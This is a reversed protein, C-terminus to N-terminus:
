SFYISLKEDIENQLINCQELLKSLRDAEKREQTAIILKCITNNSECSLYTSLNDQRPNEGGEVLDNAATAELSATRHNAMEALPAIYESRVQEERGSTVSNCGIEVMEDLSPQTLTYPQTKDQVFSSNHPDDPSVVDMDFKRLDHELRDTVNSAKMYCKKQNKLVYAVSSDGSSLNMLQWNFIRRFIVVWRPVICYSSDLLELRAGKQLMVCAEREALAWGMMKSSQTLYKILCKELESKHNQIETAMNSGQNLWSLDDPFSPLRCGEFADVILKISADSNWGRRPLFWSIVRHEDSSDKLVDIEPCPWCVPNMDATAVIEEESQDLARNFVSICHNPGVESISMKDLVELLSNLHSMVLERTKVCQLVPHQPSHRALWQLGERLQEDSYVGDFHKLPRNGALFVISFSKIRTKDLEHLGLGNVITSSPDPVDESFSGSVILLPLCSGYPLSKLLNHLQDKQLKWPISELVLFLVASGGAIEVDLEDVGIDRIVSLTCTPPSGSARTVWKKWISLGPSSVLLEEDGDNDDKRVGMLKSLLWQGTLDDVPSRQQLGERRTDNMQSCFILKWCLCKADPNRESLTREVVESVNVRSWFRRHKEHRERAINDINLEGVFRPQTKKQQIPPGMSLANLAATAALERQKRVERRRLSCRKWIRLILKLKARFAEDEQQIAKAEESEVEQPIAMVVENELDEVIVRESISDELLPGSQFGMSGEEVHPSKGPMSQLPMGKGESHLNRDLFDPFIAGLDPKDVKGVKSPPSEPSHHVLPANRPRFHVDVIHHDDENDHSSLSADFMPEVKSSNRPSSIPEFKSIEEEVVDVPAKRKVSRLTEPEFKDGDDLIIQKAEQVPRCILNDSPVVDGIIRQSKKQHVLRSRKTPYDKDANLFLGEKVMYPEEFEKILFGHYQLLNEMDEEEMGLWKTVHAVPLGQNTQLGSHLSALAQTRLKAFHAHMLCAQLYTAKRALRFFAIFNSTRCARAVERAFLVEQTQRIEPTMKSLDLSFEAPEVKYGPHKDLKLLAYYGRFEKETPINIGKKRHDDYMQFLEVSTKNMQEINLHADFGESFGEGKTYECLEHMAIIHLRIMQELMTIAGRNFIHQMRLDMRIARMRDWLFNYMGLFRDDYHQDLLALLYDVTKQLVPMPRILDAEREATRNYKKVALFKSTQNRDGDLREYKDLDGKREREERESEPCMDPCLGIIVHSSELGEFDSTSGNPFDGGAEVPHEAVFERRGVLSEDQGYMSLKHKTLDHMSQETQRLDNSFRALRRAKAQAERENDDQTSYLSGMSNEDTPPLPPSRMRKPILFSTSKTGAGEVNINRAVSSKQHTQSNTPRGTSDPHPNARFIENGYPGPPSRTRTPVQSNSVKTRLQTGVDHADVYTPVLSPGQHIQSDTYTVPSRSQNDWSKSVNQSSNGLFDEDASLFPPLGTGKPYQFNAPKAPVNSGTGPGVYPKSAYPRPFTQSNSGNVLPEPRSNWQPPSITSGRSQQALTSNHPSITPSPSRPLTGFPTQAKPPVSPGSNKGFGQFAM